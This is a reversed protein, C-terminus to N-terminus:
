FGLDTNYHALIIANLTLSIRAPTQLAANVALAFKITYQSALMLDRLPPRTNGTLQLQSQFDRLLVVWNSVTRINVTGDDPFTAFMHDAWANWHTQFSNAVSVNLDWWHSLNLWVTDPIDAINAAIAM